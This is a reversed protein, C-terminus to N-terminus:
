QKQTSYYNKVELKGDIIAQKAENLKAEMEPTILSRNYQDLAYDVGGEKLGLNQAGPKWTGDKADKFAKYVAVDVRKVMSTLVHGPHLYNQDSDVGIALKDKDAAAQLVGLGTAGAAAYVVDAGQNYQGITLESGHTPDTWAAPTTGAYNVLVTANPAAHKVGQEYGIQFNHILPIDMGGVFGVKGTKSAMAGAMGVLFSGQEEKFTVSQVNPRDVVTDIITFKTKPNSKAIQELPTAFAFGVVVVVDAGKRVMREMAQERQAEQTVEFELYPLGTEKKFKEAGNYAAENFSKDFKGGMDFIIAPQFDKASAAGAALTLALTLAGLQIRM